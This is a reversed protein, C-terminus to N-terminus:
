TTSMTDTFLEGPKFGWGADAGPVVTQGDVEVSAPVDVQVADDDGKFVDVLTCRCSFGNPPEIERWRPHDKPLTVGDLAVHSPRVRDDGVTVYTMGWLIEDIARDKRANGRGAAYALATQTRFISEYIYPNKQGAGATEFAARVRATGADVALGDAAAQEVARAVRGAVAASAEGVIRTANPGYAERLAEVQEATLNMRRRLFAIADDHAALKVSRDAKMAERFVRLRGTMHAVVMMDTTMAEIKNTANAFAGAVDGGDRFASIVERRMSRLMSRVGRRAKAEIRDQERTIRAVVHRHRDKM